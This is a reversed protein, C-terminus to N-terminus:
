PASYVLSAAARRAEDPDAGGARLLAEHRPAAVGARRGLELLAGNRWPVERLGAVFTPIRATYAVLADTTDDPGALAVGYGLELAPLLEEVLARVQDRPVSGVSAPAGARAAAACSAGYFANWALKLAQDRSLSRADPAEAAPVGAARLLSVAFAAHPGHFLSTGGPDARGDRATAAFWITGQTIADPLGRSRRWGDLYGNQVLCLDARARPALVGLVGDLDDARTCVFVPVGPAPRIPAGREAVAVTAGLAAAGRAFVSGVRGAGVLVLADSM